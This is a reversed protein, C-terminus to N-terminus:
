YLEWEFWKSQSWWPSNAVFYVPGLLCYPCAQTCWCWCTNPNAYNEVLNALWSQLELPQCSGPRIRSMVPIWLPQMFLDMYKEAFDFFLVTGWVCVNGLRTTSFFTPPVLVRKFWRVLTRLTLRLTVLQLCIAAPTDRQFAKILLPSTKEQLRSVKLIEKFKSQRHM